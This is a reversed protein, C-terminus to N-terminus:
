KLVNQASQMAGKGVAAAEDILYSVQHPVTECLIPMKFYIPVPQFLM